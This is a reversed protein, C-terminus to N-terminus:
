ESGDRQPNRSIELGMKMLSWQCRGGSLGSLGSLPRSVGPAHMPVMPEPTPEGLPGVDPVVELGTPSTKSPIPYFTKAPAGIVLILGGFYFVNLVHRKGSVLSPKKNNLGTRPTSRARPVNGFVVTLTRSRGRPAMLIQPLLTDSPMAPM